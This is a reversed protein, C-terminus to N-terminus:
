SAVGGHLPVSSASAVSYECTVPPRPRTARVVAEVADGAGGSPACPLRRRARKGPLADGHWATGSARCVCRGSAGDAGAGELAKARHGQLPRFFGRVSMWPPKRRGGQFLLAETPGMLATLSRSQRSPVSFPKAHNGIDLFIQGAPQAVGIIPSLGRRF